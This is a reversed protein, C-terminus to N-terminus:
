VEPEEPPTEPGDIDIEIASGLAPITKGVQRTLFLPGGSLLDGPEADQIEPTLEIVISGETGVEEIMTAKNAKYVIKM